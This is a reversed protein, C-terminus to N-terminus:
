VDTIQAAVRGAVRRSELYSASGRALQKAIPKAASVTIAIFHSELEMPLHDFFSSAIFIVGAHDFVM